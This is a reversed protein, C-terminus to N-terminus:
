YINFHIFAFKEKFNAKQKVNKSIKKYKGEQM